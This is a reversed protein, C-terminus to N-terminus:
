LLLFYFCREFKTVPAQHIDVRKEEEKRMRIKVELSVFRYKMPDKHSYFSVFVERSLVVAM